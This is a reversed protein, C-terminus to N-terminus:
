SPAAIRHLTEVPTLVEVDRELLWARLEKDDLLDADGTAIAEARGSLAASVVPVDGPDRIPVTTEVTPLVPTLLVVLDRVDEASLAYKRKVKPRKLVRLVEDVLKWTVVVDFRSARLAALIEGPPSDPVILASVWVNTDVVVRLVPGEAGGCRM